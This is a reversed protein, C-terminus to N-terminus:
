SATFAQPEAKTSYQTKIYAQLKKLMNEREQKNTLSVINHHHNKMINFHM